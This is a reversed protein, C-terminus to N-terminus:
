AANESPERKTRSPMRRDRMPNYLNLGDVDGLTIPKEIRESLAEVVKKAVDHTTKNRSDEMRVITSESVDALQALERRSIFYQERLERLTPVAVGGKM